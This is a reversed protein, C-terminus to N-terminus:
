ILREAVARVIDTASVIGHLTDQEMVLLRHVGAELMLGAAAHVETGPAVAVVRRTTVESVTRDSLLDWEPSDPEAFRTAVDAGANSWFDAFFSSPSDLGEEWIEVSEYDDFQGELPRSTPVGPSTAALELIDTTSIVGVVRQGRVVPAGSVNAARLAELADRLSSDLDITTLDRTMIEDVSAM